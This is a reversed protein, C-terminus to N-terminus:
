PQPPTHTTGFTDSFPPHEPTPRTRFLSPTHAPPPPPSRSAPSTSPPSTHTSSLTTHPPQPLPTSPHPPPQQPRPPLIYPSSRLRDAPIPPRPTPQTTDALPSHTSPLTSTHFAHIYSTEKAQRLTQPSYSPQPIPLPVLRPNPLVPRTPHFAGM